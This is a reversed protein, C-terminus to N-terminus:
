NTPIFGRKKLNDIIANRQDPTLNQYMKILADATGDKGLDTTTIDPASGTVKRVESLINQLLGSPAASGLADLSGGINMGGGPTFLDMFDKPAGSGIYKVDANQLATGYVTAVAQTVELRLVEIAKNQQYEQAKAIALQGDAEAMLQAKTGEAKALLNAKTGEAEALLQAKNGEAKALMEAKNGEAGAVMTKQTVDAKATGILLTNQAQGEGELIAKKRSGEAVQITAERQKDAVIIGANGNIEAKRIEQTQYVEMEKQVALQQQEAVNMKMAQDRMAIKENAEIKRSESQERAESESVSAQRQRNAVEMRSTANIEAEKKNSIDFVVTSSSDDPDRISVFAVNTIECGWKSFDSELESKVLNALEERKAIIDEINYYATATRTAGIVIDSIGHIFSDIVSAGEVLPFRRAAENVNTIKCFVSIDVTFRPNGKAFTEFNKIPIEIINLPM